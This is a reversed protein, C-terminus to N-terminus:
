NGVRAGLMRRLTGDRDIVQHKLVAAVHLGIVVIAIWAIASHSEGIAHLTEQRTGSEAVLTLGFLSLGHGGGLSNLMGSLPLLLTALLLLGHVGHAAAKQWRPGSGLMAPFGNRWRWLIRVGILALIAIGISKHLAMLSDREAGRGLDGIYLGFALMGVIAAAVLWHLGVTLASLRERTDKM